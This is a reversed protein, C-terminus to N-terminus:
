KTEVKIKDPTTTIEISDKKGDCGALTGAVFAVAVFALAMRKVINM